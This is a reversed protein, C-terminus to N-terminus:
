IAVSKPLRYSQAFHEVHYGPTLYMFVALPNWKEEDQMGQLAFTDM